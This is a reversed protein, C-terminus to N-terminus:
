QDNTAEMDPVQGTIDHTDLPYMELFRRLQVGGIIFMVVSTLAFGATMIWKWGLAETFGIGAVMSISVLAGFVLMGINETTHALIGIPVAVFLAVLLLLSLFFNAESAGGRNLLFQYSIVAVQVAVIVVLIIRTRSLRLKREDGFRVQGMRPVTIRQKAQRLLGVASFQLIMLLGIIIVSPADTIRGIIQVLAMITALIGFFIDFLGDQFTSKYARRELEKLDIVPIDPDMIHGKARSM